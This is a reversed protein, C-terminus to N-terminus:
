DLAPSSLLAAGRDALPGCAGAGTIMIAPTRASVLPSYALSRPTPSSSLTGSFLPSFGRCIPLHEGLPANISTCPSMCPDSAGRCTSNSVKQQAACGRAALCQANQADFLDVPEGLVLEVEEEVDYSQHTALLSTTAQGFLCLSLPDRAWLM